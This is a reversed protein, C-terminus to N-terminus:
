RKRKAASKKTRRKSIKARRKSPPAAKKGALRVSTAVLGGDRLAIDFQVNVASGGPLQGSTLEAQVKWDCDSLTLPLLSAHEGGGLHVMGRKEPSSYQLIYGTARM